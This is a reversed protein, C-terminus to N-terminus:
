IPEVQLVVGEAGVVRVRTGAPCDIGEVKWTSDDVKIKGRGNTIAESLTLTRGIYHEGRRNLTPQDTRTPNKRQYLRWLVVSAVSLVAFLILQYQWVFDHPLAFLLTGVILAAISMWLFFTGPVLAEFILLLLAFIFWHWYSILIIM